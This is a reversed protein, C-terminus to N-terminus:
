VSSLLCRAGKSLDNHIGGKNNKEATLRAQAPWLIWPRRTCQTFLSSPAERLGLATCCRKRRSQLVPNAWHCEPVTHLSLLLSVPISTLDPSFKHWMPLLFARCSPLLLLVALTPLLLTHPSCGFVDAAQRKQLSPRSAPLLQVYLGSLFGVAVTIQIQTNTKEKRDGKGATVM